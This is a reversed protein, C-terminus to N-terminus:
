SGRKKFSDYVPVQTQFKFVYTIEDDMTVNVDTVCWILNGTASPIFQKLLKEPNKLIM